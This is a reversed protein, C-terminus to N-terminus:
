LLPLLLHQFCLNEVLAKPFSKLFNIRFANSLSLLYLLGCNLALFRNFRDLLYAGNM